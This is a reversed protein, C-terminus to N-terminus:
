ARRKFVKDRKFAELIEEKRAVKRALVCCTFCVGCGCMKGVRAHRDLDSLTPYREPWVYNNKNEIVESIM